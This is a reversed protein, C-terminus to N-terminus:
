VVLGDLPIEIREEAWWLGVRDFYVTEGTLDLALPVGYGLTVHPRYNPYTPPPMDPVRRKVSARVMDPLGAELLVVSARPTDNGLNTAGKIKVALPSYLTSVITLADTLTDQPVPCTEAKGLFQLTCHLEDASDCDPHFAALKAASEETPLLVTVVSTHAQTNGVRADRRAQKRLAHTM